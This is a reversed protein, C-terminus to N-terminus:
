LGEPTWRYQGALATPQPCPAVCRDSHSWCPYEDSQHMWVRCLPCQVAPSGAVMLLGRCRACGVPRDASPFPEVQALRETSFFARGVGDVYLEDRDALVRFGTLLRVGNLRVAAHRASMVLWSEGEASRSRLLLAVGLVFAGEDLQVVAWACTSAAERSGPLFGRVWLHAM